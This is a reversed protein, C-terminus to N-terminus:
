GDNRGKHLLWLVEGQFWRTAQRLAGNFANLGSKGSRGLAFNPVEHLDEVLELPVGNLDSSVDLVMLAFIKWLQHPLLVRQSLTAQLRSVDILEPLERTYRLLLPILVEMTVAFANPQIYFGRKRQFWQIYSPVRNDDIIKRSVYKSWGEHTLLLPDANHTLEVLRHDLFPPRIELSWRMGNRDADRLLSPLEWLYLAVQQRDRWTCASSAALLVDNRHPLLLRNHRLLAVLDRDYRLYPNRFQRGLLWMRIPTTNGNQLTGTLWPLLERYRRQQVFQCLVPYYLWPYGLFVEDGGQGDLVVRIGDQAIQRYLIYQVVSGPSVLPEENTLVFAVMDQPTLETPLSVVKLRLNNRIAVDQAFELENEYLPSPDLTYATLQQKGALWRASAAAINTSDIGGSLTLALPADSRLVLRVADMFTERTAEVLEEPSATSSDQICYYSKDTLAGQRYRLMTAPPVQFIGNYFTLKGGATPIGYALYYEVIERSWAKRVLGSAFLAKIESAFLLWDGVITYYLPKIGFRDRCLVLERRQPSLLAFAWMGILSALCKEEEREWLELLVETDTDSKWALGPAVQKLEIFNYIEGNFSIWWQGSHSRMPQQGALSRDLISLRRHGLAAWCSDPRGHVENSCVLEPIGSFPFLVIGEDDPGRHALARHMRLVADLPVPRGTLTIMGSVGCM